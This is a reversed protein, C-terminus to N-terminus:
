GQNEIAKNLDLFLGASEQRYDNLLGDLVPRATTHWREFLLKSFARKLSGVVDISASDASNSIEMNAAHEQLDDFVKILLGDIDLLFGQYARTVEVDYDYRCRQKILDVGADIVSDVAGQLSNCAVILKNLQGHATKQNDQKLQMATAQLTATAIMLESKCNVLPVLALGSLEEVIVNAIHEKVGVVSGISIAPHTELKTTDIEVLRKVASEYRKVAKEVDEKSVKSSVYGRIGM